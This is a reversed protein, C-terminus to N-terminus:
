DFYGRRFPSYYDPYPHYMYAPAIDFKLMFSTNENLRYDLQMGGFIQPTNLPSGQGFTNYPSTSLGLNTRLHLNKSINIDMTNLYAGIMMGHNGFASYSMSFSHRMQVKSPDLFSLLVDKQPNFLSKSLNPKDIDRKLQAFAGM